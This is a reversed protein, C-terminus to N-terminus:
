SFISYYIGHNLIAEGHVFLPYGEHIYNCQELLVSQYNCHHAKLVCAPYIQFDYVTITILEDYGKVGLIKVLLLRSNTKTYLLGTHLCFSYIVESFDIAWIYNLLWTM